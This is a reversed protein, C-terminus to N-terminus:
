FHDQFSPLVDRGTLPDCVIVANVAAASREDRFFSVVTILRFWIFWVMMTMASITNGSSSKDVITLVPLLFTKKWFVYGEQM